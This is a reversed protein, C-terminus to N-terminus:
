SSVADKDKKKSTPKSALIQAELEAVKTILNQVLEDKGEVKPRTDGKGEMADLFNDYITGGSIDRMAHLIFPQLTDGCRLCRLLIFPITNPHLTPVRQGPIIQHNADYQYVEVQEMWTSSCKPCTVPHKDNLKHQAVATAREWETWTTM